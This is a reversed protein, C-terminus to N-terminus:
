KGAASLLNGMLQLAVPDFDPEKELLRGKLKIQNFLIKGKGLKIEAQAPNFPEKKSRREKGECLVIADAPLNQLTFQFVAQNQGNMRWLRDPEFGQWAPHSPNNVCVMEAGSRGGLREVRLPCLATFFWDRQELVLLSGGNEVYHKL